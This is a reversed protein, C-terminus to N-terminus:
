TKTESALQFDRWRRQHWSWLQPRAMVQQEVNRLVAALDEELTCGPELELPPEVSFHWRPEAALTVVPVIPSQMQRALQVVGGPMPMDKGLFHMRMGDEEAKVGQDVMAFVIRNQKLASLMRAYAKFGENAMIGDIGYRPLGTAFFEASMMRAHRYVITLPWGSSALQVALLLSNGSHTSLLIAGRGQRAAQLRSLGDVRLRTNLMAPDLHRDCMALVELLGITNIRYAYRLQRSIEPDGPVRGQLLAMDHLCRDRDKPSFRFQLAALVPGLWRSAAYGGVRMMQRAALFLMRLQWREFRRRFEVKEPPM